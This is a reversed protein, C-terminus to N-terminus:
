GKGQRSPSHHTPRAQQQPRTPSDQTNFVTHSLQPWRKGQGDIERQGDAWVFMGQGRTAFM